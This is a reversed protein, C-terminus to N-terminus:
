AHGLSVSENNSATIPAATDVSLCSGSSSNTFATLLEGQKLFYLGDREFGTGIIRRTSLDQFM